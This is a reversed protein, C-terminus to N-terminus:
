QTPPKRLKKTESRRQKSLRRRAVSGRTPRTPRRTRPVEAARELIAQLKSLCDAINRPQERFRQSTIVLDGADTIRSRQQELLRARTTQPLSPSAVVHFRLVAKTSARNVHQGGPGQSRVFQWHLEESPIVIAGRAARLSTPVANTEGSTPCPFLPAPPTCACVRRVLNGCRDLGGKILAGAGEVAQKGCRERWLVM